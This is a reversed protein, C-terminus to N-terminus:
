DDDSIYSPQDEINNLPADQSGSRMDDDVHNISVLLAGLSLAPAVLMVSLIFWGEWNGPLGERVVWLFLATAILAINAAIAFLKM